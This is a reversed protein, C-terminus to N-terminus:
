PRVLRSRLGCRSANCSTANRRDLPSWVNVEDRRDKARAANEKIRTGSTEIAVSEAIAANSPRKEAAEQRREAGLWATDVEADRAAHSRAVATRVMAAEEEEKEEVATPVELSASPVQQEAEFRKLVIGATREAASQLADTSRVVVATRAAQEGSASTAVPNPQVRGACLGCSHPCEIRMFGGNRSCEGASAWRKCLRNGDVCGSLEQLPLRAPAEEAATSSGPKVLPISASFPSADIVETSKYKIDQISQNSRAPKESSVALEDM